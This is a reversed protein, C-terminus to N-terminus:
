DLKGGCQTCTANTDKNKTGCFPCKVFSAKTKVKESSAEKNADIYPKLMNTIGDLHKTNVNVYNGFADYGSITIPTPKGKLWIEISTKTSTINSVKTMDYSEYTKGRTVIFKENTKDFFVADQINDHGSFLYISDSIEFTDKIEKDRLKQNEKILNNSLVKRVIIYAIVLIIATFFCIGCPTGMDPNFRVCIAFIVFLVFIASIASIMCIDFIKLKKKM